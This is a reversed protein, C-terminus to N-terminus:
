KMNTNSNKWSLAMEIDNLLVGDAGLKKCKDLSEWSGDMSGLSMKEFPSEQLNCAMIYVQADPCVRKVDRPTIDTLWQEWLRIIGAGKKYYEEAMNAVPLFALINEASFYKSFCRLMDLSVVGPIIPLGSEAIYKAFSDDYETLKIHLLIPTTERYGETLEEFTM